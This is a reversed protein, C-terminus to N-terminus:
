IFQITARDSLFSLRYPFKDKSIECFECSFGAGSHCAVKDFFLSQCLNRIELFVM